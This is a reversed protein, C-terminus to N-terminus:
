CGHAECCRRDKAAGIAPATGAAFIETSRPENCQSSSVHALYILKIEKANQKDQLYPMLAASVHSRILPLASCHKAHIV